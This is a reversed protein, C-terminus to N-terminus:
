QAKEVGMSHYLAIGSLDLPIENAATLKVRIREHHSYEM